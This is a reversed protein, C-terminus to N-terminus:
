NPAPNLFAKSNKGVVYAVAKIFFETISLVNLSNAFIIGLLAIFLKFSDISILNINLLLTTLIDVIYKITIIVINIRNINYIKFCKNHM